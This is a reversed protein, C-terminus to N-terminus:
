ANMTTGGFFKNVAKQLANFNKNTASVAESALKYAKTINDQEFYTEAMAFKIREAYEPLKMRQACAFGKKYAQLAEQDTEALDGLVEWQFPHDLKTKYHRNCLMKLELRLENVKTTSHKSLAETLQSTLFQIKEYQPAIM